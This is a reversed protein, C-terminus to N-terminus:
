QKTYTSATAATENFINSSLTSGSVQYTFTTKATTPALLGSLWWQGTGGGATFNITSELYLAEQITGITGGLTITGDTKFQITLDAATDRWTGILSQDVVACGSVALVAVVAAIIAIRKLTKKM